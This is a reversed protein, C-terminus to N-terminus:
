TIKNDRAISDEDRALGDIIYVKILESVTCQKLTKMEIVRQKLKASNMRIRIEKNPKCQAM